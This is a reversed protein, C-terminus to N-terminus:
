LFFDLSLIASWNNDRDGHHNKCSFNLGLLVQRTFMSYKRNAACVIPLSTLFLDSFRQKEAVAQTQDGRRRREADTEVSVPSM